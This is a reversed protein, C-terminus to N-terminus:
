GRRAALLKEMADDHPTKSFSRASNQAVVVWIKGWATNLASLYDLGIRVYPSAIANGNTPHKTLVGAKSKAECALWRSKLLAYEEIHAPCILPLCGTKELWATMQEFIEKAGLGSGEGAAIDALYDPPAPVDLIPAKFELVKLERKGPNGELIKEALPKKPRGAGPRRGGHPM